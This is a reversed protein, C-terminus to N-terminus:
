RTSQIAERLTFCNDYLAKGVIVGTINPCNLQNLKKIDQISSIGGSAIVSAKIGNSFEKLATYNPGALTGDRAIDTFIFTDIGAELMMNALELATVSETKTWGQVAVMGNRCDIGVVVKGPYQKAAEKVLNPNRHAITGLIVRSIGAQLANEIHELSRIGGGLESPIGTAQAIKGAIELNVPHGAKAGNLDVLHLFQGGQNKWELGVSVPDNSYETKESYNGQHLRVCKGDLLDIAPIILM